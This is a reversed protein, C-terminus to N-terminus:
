LKTYTTRTISDNMTNGSKTLLHDEGFINFKIQDANNPIQEWVSYYNPTSEVYDKCKTDSYYEQVNQIQKDATIYVAERTSGSGAVACTADPALWFGIFDPGNAPRQKKGCAALALFAMAIIGYSVKKM